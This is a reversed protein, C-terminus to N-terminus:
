VDATTATPVPAAHGESAATEARAKWSTWATYTATGLILFGNLPHLAAVAPLDERLAVFVSQLAFLVLMLVALGVYRRPMRGALAVVLLVLTLWGFTYGFNRHTVFANPSDFVGLGALFVQVVACAVFLGAVVPYATRAISRGM